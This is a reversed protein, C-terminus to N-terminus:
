VEQETFGRFETEDDLTREPFFCQEGVRGGAEAGDWAQCLTGGYSQVEELSFGIFDEQEALDLTFMEPLQVEVLSSSAGPIQASIKVDRQTSTRHKKKGGRWRGERM